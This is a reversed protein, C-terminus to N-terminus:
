CINRIYTFFLDFYKALLILLHIFIFSQIVLVLSLQNLMADYNSEFLFLFSLFINLFMLSSNYFFLVSVWGEIWFENGKISFYSVGVAVIFLVMLASNVQIITPYIINIKDTVNIGWQVIQTEPNVYKLHSVLFYEFTKTIYPILFTVVGVFYVLVIVIMLNDLTKFDRFLRRLAYKLYARNKRVFKIISYGFWIISFIVFTWMAFVFIDLFELQPIGMFMIKMGWKYKLGM